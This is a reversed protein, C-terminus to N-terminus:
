FKLRDVGLGSGMCLYLFNQRFSWIRQAFFPGARAIDSKVSIGRIQGQSTVPLFAMQKIDRSRNLQKHNIHCRYEGLCIGSRGLYSGSVTQCECVGDLCGGSM